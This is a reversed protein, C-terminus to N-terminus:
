VRKRKFYKQDGSKHMTREIRKALFRRKNKMQAVSGLAISRLTKKMAKYSVALNFSSREFQRFKADVGRDNLCNSACRPSPQPSDEGFSNGNDDSSTPDEVHVASRARASLHKSDYDRRSQERGLKEVLPLGCWTCIVGGCNAPRMITLCDEGACRVVAEPMNPKQKQICKLCLWKDRVTCTCCRRVEVQCQYSLLKRDIPDSFHRERHRNGTSWCTGCLYRRRSGMTVITSSYSSKVICSECVLMSCSRCGKIISGKTHHPESCRLAVKSKLRRWFKTNHKGIYLQPRILNFAKSPDATEDAPFDHLIARCLSNVRALSLLGDFPLSIVLAELVPNEYLLDILSAM